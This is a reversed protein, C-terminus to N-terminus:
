TSTQTVCDNSCFEDKMSYFERSCHRCERITRVNDLLVKYWLLDIMKRLITDLFKRAIM